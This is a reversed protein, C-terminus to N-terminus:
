QTMLTAGLNNLITHTSTFLVTWYCTVPRWTAPCTRDTGFAAGQIMGVAHESTGGPIPIMIPGGSVGGAIAIRSDQEDGQITLQSGYNDNFAHAMDTIKINCRAGSNAGSTCVITNLGVDVYDHVSKAFGNPDNYARDFTRGWGTRTMIRAHGGNAYVKTSGFKSTALHYSQFDNERCHRATTIYGTGQIRIAFGTTCGNHDSPAYMFDGANYPETDADRRVATPVDPGDQDVVRVPAGAVRTLETRMTDLSPTQGVPVLTSVTAKVPLGGLVIDGLCPLVVPQDERALDACWEVRVVDRVQERPDALSGAKAVPVQVLQPV